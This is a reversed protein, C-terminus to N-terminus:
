PFEVANVVFYKTKKPKNSTKGGFIGLIAGFNAMRERPVWLIARNFSANYISWVRPSVKRLPFAPPDQRHIGHSVAFGRGKIGKKPTGENKQREMESWFATILTRAQQADPL